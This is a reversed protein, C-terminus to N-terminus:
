RPHRQRAAAGTKSSTMTRRYGIGPAKGTSVTTQRARSALLEAYLGAHFAAVRARQSRRDQTTQAGLGPRATAELLARRLSAPDFRDEDHEYTVVPGQDAYYGCSPAVM